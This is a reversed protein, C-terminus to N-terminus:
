LDINAAALWMCRLAPYTAFFQRFLACVGCLGCCLSVLTACVYVCCVCEIKESHRFSKACTDQNAASFFSSFVLFCNFRRSLLLALYLSPSPLQLQLQMQPWHESRCELCSSVAHWIKAGNGKIHRVWRTAAAPPPEVRRRRSSSRCCLPDCSICAKVQTRSRGGSFMQAEKSSNNSSSTKNETKCKSKSGRCDKLIKATASFLFICCCFHLQLLFSISLSLSLPFFIRCVLFWKRRKANFCKYLRLHFHWYIMRSHFDYVPFLQLM